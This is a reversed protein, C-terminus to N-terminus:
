QSAKGTAPASATTTTTAAAPSAASATTPQMSVAARAAAAAVRPNNIAAQINLYSKLLADLHTVNLEYDLGQRAGTRGRGRMRVHAVLGREPENALQAALQEYQFDGLAEVINRKIREGQSASKATRAAAEATPIVAEAEKVQVQGGGAAALQGDGFEIRSGDIVVPIDGSITGRGSAKDKAFLELLAGLDVDQAHLTARVPGDKSVHVDSAAVAGGLWEWRTRRIFIDSPGNMEFQVQGNTFELQGVKLKTAALVQQAATAPPALNVFDVDGSVGEAAVDPTELSAAKVSLRGTARGQPDLQAVAQFVGGAVSLQAASAKEGEDAAAPVVTFSAKGDGGGANWDWKATGTVDGSVAVAAPSVYTRLLTMILDSPTHTLTLEASGQRLDTTSQATLAIGDATGAEVRARYMSGAELTASVPVTQGDGLVLQLDSVIVRKLPLHLAAAVKPQTTPSAKKEIAITRWDAPLRGGSVVITNVQRQWLDNLSYQVELKDVRQDPALQLDRVVTKWLTARTVRFTAKALGAEALASQVRGRVIVPMLIFQFVIALLLAAAVPAIVRPRVIWRRWWPLRRALVVPPDDNVTMLSM